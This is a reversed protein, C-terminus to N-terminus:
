FSGGNEGKGVRAVRAISCFVGSFSLVKSFLTGSRATSTPSQASVMSSRSLDVSVVSSSSSARKSVAPPTLTPFIRCFLRVGSGRLKM